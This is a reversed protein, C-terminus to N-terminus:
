PEDEGFNALERVRTSKLDTRPKGKEVIYVV